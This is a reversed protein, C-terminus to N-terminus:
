NLAPIVPATGLKERVVLPKESSFRRKRELIVEGNKVNWGVVSWADQETKSIPTQFIVPHNKAAMDFILVTSETAAYNDNVALWRSNPSWSVGLTRVTKWLPERKGKILLSTEADDRLRFCTFKGDPSAIEKGSELIVASNEAIPDDDANLIGSLAVLCVLVRVLVSM